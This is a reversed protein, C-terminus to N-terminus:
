PPPFFLVLPTDCPIPRAFNGLCAVLVAIAVLASSPGLLGKLPFGRDGCYKLMRFVLLPRGTCACLYADLVLLM